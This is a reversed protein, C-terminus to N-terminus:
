RHANPSVMGQHGQSARAVLRCKGAPSMQFGKAFSPKRVQMDAEDIDM